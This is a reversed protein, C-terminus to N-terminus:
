HKFKRDFKLQHEAPAVPQLDQFTSQWWSRYLLCTTLANLMSKTQCYVYLLEFRHMKDNCYINVMGITVLTMM